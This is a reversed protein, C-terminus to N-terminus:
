QVDFIAGVKSESWYDFVRIAVASGTDHLSYCTAVTITEGPQVDTFGNNDEPVSENAMSSELGIGDQMAVVSGAGAWFTTKEESNNTFDFYIRIVKEGDDWGDVVESKTISIYYNENYIGESPSDGVLADSGCPEITYDEAPRGPLAKPDFTMTASDGSISETLSFEVDGGDPKFNYEVICRITIGPLIDHYCNDAEAAKEYFSNAAVLEYGEQYADTDCAFFASVEEDSNNTFDYYFRISDNENDDKFQEASLITVHYAGLDVSVPETSAIATEDTVTNDDDTTTVYVSAAKTEPEEVSASTSDQQTSKGCACLLVLMTVTLLVSLLKKM